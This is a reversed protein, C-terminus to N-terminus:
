RAVAGDPGAWQGGSVARRRFLGPPLDELGAIGRPGGRVRLADQRGVLRRGTGPVGAARIGRQAAARLLSRVGDAETDTDRLVYSPQRENAQGTVTIANHVGFERPDADAVPVGLLAPTDPGPARRWELFAAEYRRVAEDAEDTGGGLARALSIAQQADAPLSLGRLLNSVRTRNRLAMRSAITRLSPYGAEEHLAGVFELWGRVPGVPPWQSRDSEGRSAM